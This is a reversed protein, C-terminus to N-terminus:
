KQSSLSEFQPGNFETQLANNYRTQRLVFGVQNSRAANLDTASDGIVLAEKPSINKQKLFRQIADSKLTPAGHVEKFCKKLDLSLLIREIEDQPTATILVFLQKQFNDLLYEKVGSVWACEVVSREVLESFLSCFIEVQNSDAKEGVWGLYLPMKELRSMGGNQEHHTRIKQVLEKGYKQFLIALAETKIPISEKIVGDFDWFVVSARQLYQINSM